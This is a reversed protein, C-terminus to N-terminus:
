GNAEEMRIFKACESITIVRNEYLHWCFDRFTTNEFNFVEYLRKVSSYRM